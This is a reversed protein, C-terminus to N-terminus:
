GYLVEGPRCIRPAAPSSICIACRYRMCRGTPWSLRSKWPVHMESHLRSGRAAPGLGPSIGRASVDHIYVEHSISIGGQVSM